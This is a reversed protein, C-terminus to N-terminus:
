TPLFFGPAFTQLIRQAVGERGYAVDILKTLIVPERGSAGGSVFEYM